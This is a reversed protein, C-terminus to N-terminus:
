GRELMPNGGNGVGRSLIPVRPEGSARAWACSVRERSEFASPTSGSASSITTMEVVPSRMRSRREGLDAALPQEGLFELLGQDGAGDVEGDVRHLVHRSLKGVTELDGRDKRALVRTIREQRGM